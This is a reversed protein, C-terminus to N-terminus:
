LIEIWCDFTSILIRKAEECNQMEVFKGKKMQIQEKPDYESIFGGKYTSCFFFVRQGFDSMKDKVKHIKAVM